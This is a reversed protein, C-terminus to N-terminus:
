WGATYFGLYRALHARWFGGTHGGERSVYTHAVGRAALAKHLARSPAAFEDDQGCDLYIRLGSAPDLRGALHVPSRQAFAAEDGLGFIWPPGLQEATFLAPSHIAVAGFVDPHRFALVAAGAGGMSVGAITRAARSAIVRFEREVTPIVDELLYDGYDGYGDLAGAFHDPDLRVVPSFDGGPDAANIFFSKDGQPMAAVFPPLAGAEILHDAAEHLRLFRTWYREDQGWPHLLYAVPCRMTTDGYGPPLYVHLRMTRILARSHLTLDVLRDSAHSTLGTDGRNLCVAPLTGCRGAASLGAPPEWM